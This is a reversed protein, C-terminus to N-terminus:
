GVVEMQVKPVSEVISAELWAVIKDHAHNPTGHWAREDLLWAKPESAARYLAESAERPILTDRGCHVILLPCPAVRGVVELPWHRPLLSDAVRTGLSRYVYRLIGPRWPEERHGAPGAPSSISVISDLPARSAAAQITAAAGLSVGVASVHRYGLRRAEAVVAALCAGAVEFDLDASGASAGHGPQDYLLVDFRELLHTALRVIRLDDKRKLFGHAVIVVHERGRDLLALAIETGDSMTLVASVADDPLAARAFWVFRALLWLGVLLGIAILFPM